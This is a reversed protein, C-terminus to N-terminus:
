SVQYSQPKRNCYINSEMTNNKNNHATTITTITVTNHDVMMDWSNTAKQRKRPDERKYM